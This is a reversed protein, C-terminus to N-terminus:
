SPPCIQPVASATCTITFLRESRNWRDPYYVFRYDHAFVGDKDQTGLMEFTLM